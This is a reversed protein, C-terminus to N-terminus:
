GDAREQALREAAARAEDINVYDTARAFVGEVHTVVVAYRLHVEFSAGCLRGTAELACFAVGNGLDHFEDLAFVLEDYSGWLDELYGRISDRGVFRGVGTQLVADPAYVSLYADLDGRNVAEINQQFLKVLDPTTSEESM